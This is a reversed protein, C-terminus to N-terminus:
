EKLKDGFFKESYVDMPGVVDEEKFSENDSDYVLAAASSAASSAAAASSSPIAVGTYTVQGSGSAAKPSSNPSAVNDLATTRGPRSQSSVTSSEEEASQHRARVGNGLAKANKQRQRKAAKAERKEVETRKQMPRPGAAAAAQVQEWDIEEVTLAV